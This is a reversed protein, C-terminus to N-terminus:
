IKSHSKVNSGNGKKWIISIKTTSCLFQVAETKNLLQQTLVCIM